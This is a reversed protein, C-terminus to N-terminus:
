AWTHYYWNPSWPSWWNASFGLYVWSGCDCRLDTNYIPWLAVQGIVFGIVAGVVAGPLGGILAGIITGILAALGLWWYLIVQVDYHSLRFQVAGSFGWWHWNWYWTVCCFLGSQDSANIPDGGAYTYTPSEVNLPDPQTFRGLAPAYYRAGMKYLGTAADWVAGIWRFPNAVTETQTTANGYPDYAYRNVLAGASNVLGVVSGQADHLYYYTSGGVRESLPAGNAFHTFDTTQGSVTLQGLGTTDYQFTTSGAGVREVQGVDQYSMPVSSGGAPTVSATQASSSYTLGLGSGNGTLNGAGDYSYAVGGAGVMQNDSNNTFSTSTGGVTQSTLNGSPDFAYQDNAIAQGGSNTQAAATLRGGNDYTYRTTNGAVDVVSYIKSTASSTAPNVYGYTFSTLRTGSANTAVVSQTLGSSDFAFTETVGNPYQVTTNQQDADYGLTTTAGGQDTISVPENLSNYSRRETGGSDTRSVLNGAADYSYSVTSGGPYAVKTVRNLGDYTLTTTGTGDTVATRNGDADYTDTVSSGGGYALRTTRDLADYTYTTTRGTGDTSTAVRSLSDYTYTTSGRPSPYTVRTVNGHADYSFSTQNGRADTYTAVTGDSNYGYTRTQGNPDTTQVVNANADYAITTTDGEPTTQATKSFPHSPDNFASADQLSSPSTIDTVNNNNDFTSTTTGGLPDTSTALHNDSTYSKTQQNGLADVTRTVRGANDYYYTSKNGNGDAVVTNGANYTFGATSGDAFTIQTVRSLGDYALGTANNLPDTIRTLDSGSYAYHTTNGAPDTYSALQSAAGSYQYTRGASDTVQSIMGNATTFTTVRGQTDTISALSAGSYAFSLKNRNRDAQSTLYGQASFGLQGGSLHDSLTFTGDGNKTLTADLGPPAQYTGDANRTFPLQAGTSAYYDVNGDAFVQLGVDAGTDFTWGLGLDACPTPTPDPNTVGSGATWCAQLSNYHRSVALDLGTGKVHLDDSRLELDGNAVNVLLQSRDSLPYKQMTYQTQEGLWPTYTVVLQTGSSTKGGVVIPAPVKVVDNVTESPERLLLGNNPSSGNVWAQVVPTIPWTM